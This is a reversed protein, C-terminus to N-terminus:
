LFMLFLLFFYVFSSVVDLNCDYGGLFASLMMMRILMMMVVVVLMAEVVVM